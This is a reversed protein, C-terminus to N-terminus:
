RRGASSDPWSRSPRTISCWGFCVFGAPGCGPSRTVDEQEVGVGVGGTDGRQKGPGAAERDLGEDIGSLRLGPEEGLRAVEDQHVGGHGAAPAAVEQGLRPVQRRAGRHRRQGALVARRRPDVAAPGDGAQAPGVAVDLEEHPHVSEDVGGPDLGVHGGLRHQGDTGVGVVDLDAHGAGQQGMTGGSVGDVEQGQASPGFPSGGVEPDGLGLGRRRQEPGTEEHLVELVRTDGRAVRGDPEDLPHDVQHPRGDDVRVRDVVGVLVVPGDVLGRHDGGAPHGPDRAVLRRRGGDVEPGVPEDGDGLEDFGLLLGDVGEGGLGAAVVELALHDRGGGAVPTPEGVGGVGLCELDHAVARCEGLRRDTGGVGGVLPVGHGPGLPCRHRWSIGDLGDADQHGAGTTGGGDGDEPGELWSAVTVSTAASM